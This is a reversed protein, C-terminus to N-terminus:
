IINRFCKKIYLGNAKSSQSPLSRCLYLTIWVQHFCGLRYHRDRRSPETMISHSPLQPMVATLPSAGSKGGISSILISRGDPTHLRVDTVDRLRPYNEGATKARLTLRGDSAVTAVPAGAEVYSGDAALLSTVTGGIPSVATGGAAAPSYVARAQGLAAVAAQYEAATVLKEEYLPKLRRVEAEAADLAAKIALNSNGGAVASPNISAVPTGSGITQGVNVRYRVIGAIPAAAVGESGAAREIVASCRISASMPAAYVSDVKVGFREAMENHLMVIGDPENEHDKDAETTEAAKANSEKSGCGALTSLACAIIGIFIFKKM